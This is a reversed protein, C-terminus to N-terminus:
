RDPNVELAPAVARAPRFSARTPRLQDMERRRVSSEGIVANRSRPAAQGVGPVQPSSLVNLQASGQVTGVDQVRAAVEVVGVGAVNFRARELEYAGRATAPSTARPDANPEGPDTGPVPLYTGQVVQSTQGVPQGAADLQTFRMAVSGYAVSRNDPLVLGVLVRNSENAILEYNVPIVQVPSNPSITPTPPDQPAESSCASLLSALLTALWTAAVMIRRRARQTESEEPFAGISLFRDVLRRISPVTAGTTPRSWSCGDRRITGCPPVRCM